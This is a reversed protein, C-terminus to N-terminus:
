VFFLNKITSYTSFLSFVLFVLGVVTGSGTWIDKFYVRKLTSRAVNLRKEHHENLKECIKAYLFRPTVIQDCLKNVLDAVAKNTGLWNEIIKKDVLLDVDEVTDILQDLLFIYNCVRPENPYSFQELAMVNRFICETNDQVKLQPIKLELCNIWCCRNLWCCGRGKWWQCCKNYNEVAPWTDISALYKGDKPCRFMVGANNLQKASYLCPTVDKDCNNGKRRPTSSSIKNKSSERTCPKGFLFPIQNELLILDQQIAAKVWPRLIYDRSYKKDEKDPSQTQTEDKRFFPWFMLCPCDKIEKDSLQKKKKDEEKHKEHNRLFLELIFCADRLIMPVSDMWYKQKNDPEFSEDGYSRKIRTPLEKYEEMLEKMTIHNRKLFENMYKAKYHEM